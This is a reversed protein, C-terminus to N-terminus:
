VLSITCVKTFADFDAFKLPEQETGFPNRQPAKAVYQRRTYEDFIDPSDDTLIACQSNFDCSVNTRQTLLCIELTCPRHRLAYNFSEEYM